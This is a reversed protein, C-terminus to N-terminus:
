SAEIIGLLTGDSRTVLVGDVDARRMREQLAPLDESPRVTTPGELMLQDVTAGGDATAADAHLGGMVVGDADLAVLMGYRSAALQERVDGFRDRLGCTPVDTRLADAALHATGEYPLGFALWDAKGPVYDYADFGLSALRAAARPSM